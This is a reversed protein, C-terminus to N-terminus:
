RKVKTQSGKGGSARASALLSEIVGLAQTANEGTSVPKDSGQLCKVLHEVGGDLSVMGYRPYETKMPAKPRLMLENLKLLNKGPRAEYWDLTEGMRIRAKETM